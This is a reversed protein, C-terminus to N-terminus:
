RVGALIEEAVIIVILANLERTMSEPMAYM